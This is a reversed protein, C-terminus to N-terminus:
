CCSDSKCTNSCSLYFIAVIFLIGNDVGNFSNGVHGNFKGDSFQLIILILIIIIPLNQKRGGIGFGDFLSTEHHHRKSSM